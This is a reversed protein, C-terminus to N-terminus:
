EEIMVHWAHTPLSTNMLMVYLPTAHQTQGSIGDGPENTTGPPCKKACTPLFMIIKQVNIAHRIEMWNIMVVLVLLWHPMIHM